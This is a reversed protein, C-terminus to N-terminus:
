EAVNRRIARTEGYAATAEDCRAHAHFDAIRDAIADISAGELRDSVLRVDARDEDRMRRMAVAWDVIEGAGGFSLAGDPARCVPVVGRYVHPALRANLTVEAECAARRQSATRFDLFGFDVPKKVKFVADDGLFVWSAHTERVEVRHPRPSPFALPRA